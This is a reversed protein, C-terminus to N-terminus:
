WAISLLLCFNYAGLLVGSTEAFFGVIVETASGLLCLLKTFYNDVERLYLSQDTISHLCPYALWVLVALPQGVSNININEM